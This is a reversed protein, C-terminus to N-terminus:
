PNVLLFRLKAKFDGEADNFVRQIALTRSPFTEIFFFRNIQTVTDDEYEFKILNQGENLSWVGKLNYQICLVEDDIIKRDIRAETFSHDGKFILEIIFCPFDDEINNSKISDFNYDILREAEASGSLWQGLFDQQSIIIEDDSSCGITITFILAFIFNTIKKM